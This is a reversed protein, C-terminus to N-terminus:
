VLHSICTGSIIKAFSLLLDFDTLIQNLESPSSKRNYYSSAHFKIVPCHLLLHETSIIAGCICKASQIYKVRCANLRLRLMLSYVKRSSSNNSNIKKLIFGKTPNEISKVCNISYFLNLSKLDDLVKNKTFNNLHICYEHYDM